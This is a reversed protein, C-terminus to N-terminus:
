TYRSLNAGPHRSQVKQMVEKFGQSQKPEGYITGGFGGASWDKDWDPNDKRWQEYESISMKLELTDGNKLNKVNYTPMTNIDTLYRHTKDYNENHIVFLLQIHTVM